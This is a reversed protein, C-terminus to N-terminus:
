SPRSRGRWDAGGGLGWGDGGALPDDEDGEFVAGAQDVDNEELVGVVRDGVRNEVRTQQQHAAGHLGATWAAGDDAGHGPVEFLEGGHAAVVAGLSGQVEQALGRRRGGGGLGLAGQDIAGGSGVQVGVGVELGGAGAGLVPAAQSV